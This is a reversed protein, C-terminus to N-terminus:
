VIVQKETPTMQLKRMFDKFFKLFIQFQACYPHAKAAFRFPIQRDLTNSANRRVCCLNQITEKRETLKILQLGM